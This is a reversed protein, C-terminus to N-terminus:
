VLELLSRPPLSSFEQFDFSGNDGYEMRLCIESDPAVAWVYPPRRTACFEYTSHNQPFGCNDFAHTGRNGCQRLDRALKELEHPRRKIVVAALLQREISKILINIDNTLDANLPLPKIEIQSALWGCELILGAAVSLLSVAERRLRPPPPQYAFLPLEVQSEEGSSLLLGHVNGSEDIEFLGAHLGGVFNRRDHESLPPSIRLGGPPVPQQVAACFRQFADQLIQDANQQWPVEAM